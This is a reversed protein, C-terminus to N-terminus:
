DGDSEGELIARGRADLIVYSHDLLGLERAQRLGLPPRRDAVELPEGLKRLGFFVGCSPAELIEFERWPFGRRKASALYQGAFVVRDGAATDVVFGPGEDEVEEIEIASVAEIRLVSAQGGALDQRVRRRLKWGGTWRGARLFLWLMVAATPLLWWPVGESGGLLVQLVHFLKGVLLGALIFLVARFLVASPAVLARLEDRQQKTLPRTSREM